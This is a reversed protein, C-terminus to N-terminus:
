GRESLVSQLCTVAWEHLMVNTALYSGDSYLWSGGRADSLTAGARQLIVSAAAVDWIKLDLHWYAHLRGAAVQCLGLAPSGMVPCHRVQDVMRGVIKKALARQQEGYPWDTGITAASWAELGESTHQVTIVEGNRTAPGGASAAFLEDACPDYVAGAQILGAVRLAVSVAFHPIGQVYNLSGCIPDVIWLHEADVAMPADDPGEEGLIAAGPDGDLLVRTIAEQVEEAAQCSVDRNGKWRMYGPNRLRARALDGGTRAARATLELLEAVKVM